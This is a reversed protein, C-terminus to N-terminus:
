KRLKNKVLALNQQIKRNDPDILLAKEFYGYAQTLENQKLHISGLNNLVELDNPLFNLAEIYKELAANFKKQRLLEYAEYSLLKVNRYKEREVVDVAIEQLKCYQKNAPHHRCLFDVQEIASQWKEQLILSEFLALRNIENEPYEVAIAQLYSEAETLKQRSLLVLALNFRNETNDALQLATQFCSEAKQYQGAVLMRQGRKRLADARIGNLYQFM